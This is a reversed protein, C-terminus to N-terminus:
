APFHILSHIPLPSLRERGGLGDLEIVFCACVPTAGTRSLLTTSAEVTGGTALLDDILIVRDGPRVADAHMELTNTGYELSYDISIKEFPLKGPKRIPIFPLALREALLPGFIFGRAEPGAIATPRYQKVELEFRQTIESMLRHDALVTTIDRFNIGEKPFGPITRITKRLEETLDM